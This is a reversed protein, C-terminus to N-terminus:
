MISPVGPCGYPPVMDSNLVTSPLMPFLRRSADDTRLWFWVRHVMVENGIYEQRCAAVVGKIGRNNSTQVTLHWIFVVSTTINQHQFNCKSQLNEDIKRALDKQLVSYLMNNKNLNPQGPKVLGSYLGVGTSVPTDLDSNKGSSAMLLCGLNLNAWRDSRQSHMHTMNGKVTYM